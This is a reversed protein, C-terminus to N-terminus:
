AATGVAVWNDRRASAYATEIVQVSALADEPTIRAVEVDRLTAVFNELQKRLSLTKDYGSGFPVWATNGDQRYRSGKWGVLLTGESGFVSVYNELDKNISWSLDITGIVGGKTRFQVRVTDEVELGQAAIGNQAQVEQIPGLLYRAIDVSHTGNDILVGGGSVDKQANWRDKMLVKGCFSNEFMVIRGLLGAEIISKAKLIDDVYRFKSAMMLLLGQTRALEVLERADATRITLPKECMVHVGQKLFHGSIEYHTAPPTCIIVADCLDALASDSPDAFWRVRRQEAVAEGAARRPEVVATLQADPIGALAELHSLGIRGAGVLAFRIPRSELIHKM